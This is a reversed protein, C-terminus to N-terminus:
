ILFFIGLTSESNHLWVMKSGLIAWKSLIINKKKRFVMLCIKIYRKAGKMVCFKSAIKLSAGSYSSTGNEPWFPRNAWCSFKKLFVTLTIEMSRKVGKMTCFKLFIRLFSWFNHPHVMKLGLIAWNERFIFKESCGNTFRTANM